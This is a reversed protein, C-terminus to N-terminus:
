MYKDLSHLFKKYHKSQYIELCQYLVISNEQSNTKNKKKSMETLIYKELKSYAESSHSGLQFYVSVTAGADRKIWQGQSHKYVCYSFGYNALM